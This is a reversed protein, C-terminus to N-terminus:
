DSDTSTVDPIETSTEYFVVRSAEGITGRLTAGSIGRPTGGSIVELAGCSIGRPTGDVHELLKALFKGLHGVPVELPEM